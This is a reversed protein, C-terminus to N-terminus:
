ILLLTPGVVEFYRKLRLSGEPTLEMCQRGDNAYAASLWGEQELKKIWRLAVSRPMNSAACLDSIGVQKQALHAAFAELLLDWAPDAFLDEGLQRERIRRAALIRRVRHEDISLVRPGADASPQSELSLRAEHLSRELRGIEELLEERLRDAEVAQSLQSVITVEGFQGFTM